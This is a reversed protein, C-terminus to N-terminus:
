GWVKKQCASAARRLTMSREDVNQVQKSWDQWAQELDAPMADDQDTSQRVVRAATENVDPNPESM